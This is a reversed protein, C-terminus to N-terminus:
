CIDYNEEIYNNMQIILESYRQDNKPWRLPFLSGEGDWGYKRYNITDLIDIVDREYGPRGYCDNCAGILGCNMLMEKFWKGACDEYESDDLEFQMKEALVVFLEMMTGYEGCIEDLIDITEEDYDEAYDCRLMHCEQSRNEDMALIPFFRYDMLTKCLSSYGCSGEAIIGVRNMLYCLYETKIEEYNRRM